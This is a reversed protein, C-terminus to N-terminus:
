GHNRMESHQLQPVGHDLRVLALQRAVVAERDFHHSAQLRADSSLDCWVPQRSTIALAAEQAQMSIWGSDYVSEAGEWGSISPVAGSAMGEAVATHFAEIDSTSLIWGIRRFWGPVDSGHQDLEVSDRLLPSHNIRAMVDTYYAREEERNWVWSYEWPMRSKISLRWREDRVRLEELIDLARDLRKLRPVIGLMGLTWEAGPLKPRDLAATDVSVPILHVKDSPWGTQELLLDRYHGTVAVMADVREIPIQHVLGATLEVRHMRVVLRQHPRKENAWWVAVPGAWEVWVADAWEALEPGLDTGRRSISEWKDIRLQVGPERRLHEILHQAFKLDHGAVVVKMPRQADSSLTPPYWRRVDLGAGDENPEKHLASVATLARDRATTLIRPDACARELTLLVEDLTSAFFPYGSGLLDEYIPLRNAMPPTGAMSYELVKSSLELSGDLSPSRWSLGIDAAAILALTEERTKAGMWEVGEAALAETMRGHWTPDTQPRHIKDGIVTLRVQVGIRALAAPLGCIELANVEPALKGAYVLRLPNRDTGLGDLSRDLGSEWARAGPRPPVVVTKGVASPALGEIMDRLMPTQCVLIRSAHSISDLRARVGQNSRGYSQPVDVLYAWVRDGIVPSELAAEVIASGRILFGDFERDRDLQEMVRVAGAPTLQQNGARFEADGEALRVGHLHNHPDILRVRDRGMLGRLLLDRTVDAKLLVTADHGADLLSEVISETWIASGDVLNMNLDGYVLVRLGSDIM